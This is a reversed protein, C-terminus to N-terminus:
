HDPTVRAHVCVRAFLLVSKADDRMRDHYDLAATLVAAVAAAVAAAAAAAAVAVGHRLSAQSL